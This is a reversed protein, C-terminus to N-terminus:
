KKDCNRFSFHCVEDVSVRYTCKEEELLEDFAEYSYEESGGPVHEAVSGCQDFERASLFRSVCAESQNRCLSVIAEM